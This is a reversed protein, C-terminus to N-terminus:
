RECRWTTGHYPTYTGYAACVGLNIPSSPRAPPAKRQAEIAKERETKVPPTADDQAAASASLLLAFLLATKNPM